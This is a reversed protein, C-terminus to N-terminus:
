ESILATQTYGERLICHSLLVNLHISTPIREQSGLIRRCKISRPLHKLTSHFPFETGIQLEPVQATHSLHHLLETCREKKGSVSPQLSSQLSSQM